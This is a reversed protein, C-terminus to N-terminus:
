GNDILRVIEDTKEQLLEETNAEVLLRLYPETNSPRINFWWDKFEIRYGDLDYFKDVDYKTTFHQRIREMAAKKDTVTFNLEGSNYYKVIDQIIESINQGKEKIENLINLVLLMALMGSDSYFFDKFYYHGALEGGFLGDIERLKIAAYARGVKWIYPKGGLKEIHKIVSKSTRIDHIVKCSKNKGDKLFHEALVAIMIDPPIFKGKDDVFMVRDADGDFIIGIDSKNKAVEKKLAEVNKEVLPNPSHNPFSGDLEDFIYHPSHGLVKKILLAAMGNSCDISINLNSINPKYQNLFKLYEDIVDFAVIKGKNKAVKIEEASMLHEIEKLGNDYGVPTANSTSIKLGNYEKDNHSATIMVSADFKHFATTYYVMPTTCLGADYVDAGNDTVGKCLSEFIEPSSLRVDRGILVKDTKLLKPLFFGIKYVDEKNFDVNYIGRVDYAHFANM